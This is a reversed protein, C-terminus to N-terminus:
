AEAAGSSEGARDENLPTTDEVLQVLIDDADVRVRYERLKLGTMHAPHVCQGDSASYQFNHWLCTFKGDRVKHFGVPGGFHPCINSM